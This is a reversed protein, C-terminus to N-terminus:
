MVKGVVVASSLDHKASNGGNGKRGEIADSFDRETIAVLVIDGKKYHPYLIFEETPNKNRKFEITGSSISYSTGGDPIASHSVNGGVLNYETPMLFRHSLVRANVIKEYPQKDDDLFLPELDVIGGEYSEVKAIIITHIM